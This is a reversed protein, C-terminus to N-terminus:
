PVSFDMAINVVAQWRDRSLGGHIWDVHEFEIERLVMKINVEWRHWPSRFPRDGEPKRILTKYVNRKGGHASCVRGM